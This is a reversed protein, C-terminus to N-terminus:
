FDYLSQSLEPIWFDELKTPFASPQYLFLFLDLVLFPVFGSYILPATM